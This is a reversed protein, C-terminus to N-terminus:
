AIGLDPGSNQALTREIASIENECRTLATEYEQLRKENHRKREELMRKLEEVDDTGFKERAEKATEKYRQIAQKITIDLRDRRRELNRRREELAEYKELLKKYDAEAEFHMM